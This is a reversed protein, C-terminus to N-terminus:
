DFPISFELIELLLNEWKNMEDLSFTNLRNVLDINWFYIDDYFKVGIMLATYLVPKWNCPLWLFLCNTSECDKGDYERLEDDGELNVKSFSSINIESSKKILKEIIMIAIILVSKSTKAPV